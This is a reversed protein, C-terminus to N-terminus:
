TIDRPIETLQAILAILLATGCSVLVGQQISWEYPYRFLPSLTTGVSFLWPLLIGLELFVFSLLVRVLWRRHRPVAGIAFGLVVLMSGPTILWGVPPNNLFLIWYVVAISFNVIGGGVLTSVLVRPVPKLVNFRRAILRTVFIGLGFPIGLSIATQFTIKAGDIAFLGRLGIMLYVQFAIGSIAGLVTTIFAPILRDASSLIQRIGVQGSIQWRVIPPVSPPFDGAVEQITFLAAHTNPSREKRWARVLNQTATISRSQGILRAAEKAEFGDSQAIIALKQDAAPTFAVEQWQGARSGLRGLLELADMQFSVDAGDTAMDLLREISAPQLKVSFLTDAEHLLLAVTRDVAAIDEIAITQICAQLRAEM